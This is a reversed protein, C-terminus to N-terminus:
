TRTRPSVRSAHLDKVDFFVSFGFAVCLLFASATSLNYADCWGNFAGPICRKGMMIYVFEAGWLLISLIDIFMSWKLLKRARKWQAELALGEFLGRRKAKRGRHRGKRKGGSRMKMVIKKTMVDRGGFMAPDVILNVQVGEGPPGGKKSKKGKKGGPLGQVPLVMMGDPGQNFPTDKKAKRPGCCSPYILFWYTAFLFTIVSLVYLVYAPPKGSPPPPSSTKIAVASYIGSIAALLALLVQLWRFALRKKPGETILHGHADVSGIPRADHHIHKGKGFVRELMRVREEKVEKDLPPKTDSPDIGWPLMEADRSSRSGYASLNPYMPPPSYSPLGRPDAQYASTPFTPDFFDPNDQPMPMAQYAAFDVKRQAYWNRSFAPFNAIDIETQADASEPPRYHGERSAHNSVSPYSPISYHPHSSPPPLSYPRRHPTPTRISTGHSHSTTASPAVLSPVSDGSALPRIPQPSPPYNDYARFAPISYPYADLPDQNARRLTRAYDALDLAEVSVDSPERREAREPPNPGDDSMFRNPPLPDVSEPSWPRRFQSGPPPTDLRHFGHSYM